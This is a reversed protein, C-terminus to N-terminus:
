VLEIDVLAHDMGAFGTNGFPQGPMVIYFAFLEATVPIPFGIGTKKKPYNHSIKYIKTVNKHFLPQM